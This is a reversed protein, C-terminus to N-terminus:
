RQALERVEALDTEDLAQTARKGPTRTATEALDGRYHPSTLKYGTVRAAEAIPDIQFGRFSHNFWKRMAEATAPDGCSWLATVASAVKKASQLTIDRKM